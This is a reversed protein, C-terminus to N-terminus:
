LEELTKEYYSLTWCKLLHVYDRDSLGDARYGIISQDGFRVEQLHYLAQQEVISLGDKGRRLKVLEGHAIGGILPAVSYSRGPHSSLYDRCFETVSEFSYEIM